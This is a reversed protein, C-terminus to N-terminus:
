RIYKSADCQYRKWFRAQLCETIQNLQNLESSDLDAKIQIRKKKVMSLRLQLSLMDDPLAEHDGPADRLATYLRWALQPLTIFDNIGFGFSM